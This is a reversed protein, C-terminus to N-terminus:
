DASPMAASKGVPLLRLVPLLRSPIFKGDHIEVGPRRDEPCVPPNGHCHRLVPLALGYGVGLTVGGALALVLAQTSLVGVGSHAHPCLAGVAFFRSAVIVGLSGSADRAVISWTM